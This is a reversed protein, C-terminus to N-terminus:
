VGDAVSYFKLQVEFEPEGFARTLYFEFSSLLETNVTQISVRVELLPPLNEFVFEVLAAEMLLELWDFLYAFSIECSHIQSQFMFIIHMICHFSKRFLISIVFLVSFLAEDFLDLHHPTQVVSVCHLKM